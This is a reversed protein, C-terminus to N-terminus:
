LPRAANTVLRHSWLRGVAMLTLGLSLVALGFPSGFLVTLPDAGILYGLVLGFVPLWALLRVTAKPGALATDRAASADLGAELQLAYRDLVDALPAGSRETIEICAAIDIWLRTFLPPPNGKQASAESARRLVDPVRLGMSAGQQAARFIPVAGSAFGQQTGFHGVTPLYVVLVDQWLQQPSRGARLLGTLQHVFLPLDHPDIRSTRRAGRHRQVWRGLATFFAMDPLQDTASLQDTAPQLAGSRISVPRSTGSQATIPQATGLRVVTNFRPKRAFLVLCAGGLLISVALGTM